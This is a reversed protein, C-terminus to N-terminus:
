SASDRVLLRSAAPIARGRCAQINDAYGRMCRHPHPAAEASGTRPTKDPVTHMQLSVPHIHIPLEASVVHTLPVPYAHGFGPLRDGIGVRRNRECGNLGRQQNDILSVVSAVFALKGPKQM